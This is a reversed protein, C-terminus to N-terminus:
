HRDELALNRVPVMPLTTLIRNRDDMELALGTFAEGDRATCRVSGVFDSARPSDFLEDVFRAAQGNRLLPIPRGELVMGDQMLRCAVESATTGLNRVAIGTRIGRLRNQAPFLADRVPQSAGVGAVGIEPIDFRLFGGVPGDAVVKVSGSVLDGRGHTSITLEGLPAIAATVSLAGDARVQLGEGVDVVSAPAILDGAEGHFYVAPRVPGSAVNVFVLESTVSSGNAFHSFYQRTYDQNRMRPVSVVPLTTFVAHEFDIELAVGAFLAEAPASCRVSGSFNSTDTGTFLEDIFAAAQGNAPLPIEAEELVNGEQMLLCTVTIPDWLSRIAAGTNIGGAVRRVPFIADWLPRGSGVGAVGIGPANFRLVGGIPGDAVVRASGTVLEGRGHTSITVEGLPELATPLSLTGDAGVMRDGTIEVVLEADILDGGRDYFRFSPRVPQTGVNVIVLESTISSGNAFHAFDLSQAQWVALPLPSRILTYGYHPSPRRPLRGIEVTVASAADPNRSVSQITSETHGKPITIRPSDGEVASGGSLELALEIEFPAGTPVRARFRGPEVWELSVPVLLPDGPNDALNLWELSTLGSFIGDPLRRLQNQHLRLEYLSTLGSFVKAPLHSLRNGALYLRILSAPGSFIGEPLNALRNQEMRLWQLVSLGSFLGEPLRRLDNGGLELWRLSSLGSFVGASLTNLRNHGLSLVVLAPLGAFVGAPLTTIQNNDLYLSQLSSLGSFAGEPLTTLKNEGLSLSSLASLGSFIGDPLSSTQNNVISLSRLVPLGSFIGQPLTRLEHRALLISTLSTLGSFDGEKLEKIREQNNFVAGNIPGHLYLSGQIAALHEETADACDAIGPIKRLIAGQIEPTRDCVPTVASMQAMVPVPASLLIMGLTASLLLSEPRKRSLHPTMSPHTLM